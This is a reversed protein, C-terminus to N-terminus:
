RDRDLDQKQHKLDERAAKIFDETAQGVKEKGRNNTIATSFRNLLKVLGGAVNCGVCPPPDEDALHFTVFTKDCKTCRYSYRPM